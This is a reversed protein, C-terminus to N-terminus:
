GGCHEPACEGGLLSFPCHSQRLSLTVRATLHGPYSDLAELSSKPAEVTLRPARNM